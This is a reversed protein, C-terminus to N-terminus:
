SFLPNVSLFNLVEVANRDIWAILGTKSRKQIRTPGPPRISPPISQFVAIVLRFLAKKTVVSYHGKLHQYMLSREFDYARFRSARRADIGEGYRRRIQRPVTTPPSDISLSGNTQSKWESKTAWSMKSSEDDSFSDYSTFEVFDFLSSDSSDIPVKPLPSKCDSM